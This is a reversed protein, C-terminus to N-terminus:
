GRNDSLTETSNDPNLPRRWQRGYEARYWGVMSRAMRALPNDFWGEVLAIAGVILLARALLHDLQRSLVMAMAGTLMVAGAILKAARIVSTQPSHPGRPNAMM